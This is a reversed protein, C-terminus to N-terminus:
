VNRTAIRASTLRKQLTRVLWGFMEMKATNKAPFYSTKKQGKWNSASSVYELCESFYNEFPVDKYRYVFSCALEM